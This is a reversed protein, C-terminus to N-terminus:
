RPAPAGDEARAPGGGDEGDETPASFNMWAQCALFLPTAHTKRGFQRMAAIIVAPEGNMLCPVLAFPDDTQAAHILGYFAAEMWPEIPSDMDDAPAAHGRTIRKPPPPEGGYPATVAAIADRMEAKIDRFAIM